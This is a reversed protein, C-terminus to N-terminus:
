ALSEKLAEFRARRRDRRYELEARLNTLKAEFEASPAAGDLLHLVTEFSTITKVLDSDTM